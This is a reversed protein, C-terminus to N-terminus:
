MTAGIRPYQHSFSHANLETMPVGSTSAIALTIRRNIFNAMKEIGEKVMM